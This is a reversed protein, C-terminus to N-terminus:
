IASLARSMWYRSPFFGHLVPEHERRRAQERESVAFRERLANETSETTNTYRLYIRIKKIKKKELLLRCVLNCPSQLESTHEESRPQLQRQRRDGGPHRESLRLARRAAADLEAAAGPQAPLRRGPGPGRLRALLAR